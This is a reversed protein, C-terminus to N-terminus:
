NTRTTAASPKTHAGKSTDSVRAVKFGHQDSARLVMHVWDRKIHQYLPDNQPQLIGLQLTVIPCPMNGSAPLVLQFSQALPLLIAPDARLSFKSRYHVQEVIGRVLM